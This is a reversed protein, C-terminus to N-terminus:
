VTEKDTLGDKWRVVSEVASIYDCMEVKRKIPALIDELSNDKYKYQQLDEIIAILSDADLSYMAKEMAVIKKDFEDGSIEPLEARDNNDVADKLNQVPSIYPNECLDAFLGKYESMLEEHHKLIYDVRNEKGAFELKRAMESVVTAGISRLAGKLGHVAITYNKWDKQKYTEEVGM